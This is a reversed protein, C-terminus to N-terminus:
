EMRPDVRRRRRVCACNRLRIAPLGHPWRQFALGVNVYESCDFPGATLYYPGGVATSYDGNLNVGYVNAGTAGSVPDPYGNETGGQGTPTGFAWQGETTWGPNTDMNEGYILESSEAASILMGIMLLSFLKLSKM